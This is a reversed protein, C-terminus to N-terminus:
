ISLCFFFYFVSKKPVVPNSMGPAFVKRNLISLLHHKSQFVRSRKHLYMISPTAPCNLGLLFEQWQMQMHADGATHSFVVMPKVTEGQGGELGRWQAKNVQGVHLRRAPLKTWWFVGAGPSQKRVEGWGSCQLRTDASTKTKDNNKEERGSYHFTERSFLGGTCVDAPRRRRWCTWGRLSESSKLM